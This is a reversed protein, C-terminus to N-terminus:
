ESERGGGTSTLCQLTCSMWWAWRRRQTWVASSCLCPPRTRRWVGPSDSDTLRLAKSVTVNENMWTMKFPSCTSDPWSSKNKDGQLRKVNETELETRWSRRTWSSLFLGLPELKVQPTTNEKSINLKPCVVDTSDTSLLVLHSCIIM